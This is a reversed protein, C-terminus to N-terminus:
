ASRWQRSSMARATRGYGGQRDYNTATMDAVGPVRRLNALAGRALVGGHAQLSQLRILKTLLSRRLDSLKAAEDAPLLQILATITVKAQGSGAGNTGVFTRVLAAEASRRARECREVATFAATQAAVAAQVRTFDGSVMAAILEEARTVCTDYADLVGRLSHALAEVASAKGSVTM